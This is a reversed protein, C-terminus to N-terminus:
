EYVGSGPKHHIRKHWELDNPSWKSGDKCQDCEVSSNEIPAHFTKTRHSYRLKDALKLANQLRTQFDRKESELTKIREELEKHQLKLGEDFGKQYGRKHAEDIEQATKPLVKGGDLITSAQSDDILMEVIDSEKLNYSNSLQILRQITENKLRFGKLKKGPM